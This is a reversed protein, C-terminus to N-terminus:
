DRIAEVRSIDISVGVASVIFGLFEVSDIFFKYKKRSTFLAYKRLRELVARVYRTYEERTYSYILINDLYVVYFEDLLGVLAKNIYV